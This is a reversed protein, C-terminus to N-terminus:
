DTGYDTLCVSRWVMILAVFMVEVLRDMLISQSREKLVAHCLFVFDFIRSRGVVFQAYNSCSASVVLSM